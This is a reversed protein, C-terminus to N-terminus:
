GMAANLKMPPRGRKKKLPVKHNGSINKPDTSGSSEIPSLTIISGEVTFRVSGGNQLGLANVVEAPISCVRTKDLRANYVLTEPAPASKEEPSKGGVSLGEDQWALNNGCSRCFKPTTGDARAPTDNGCQDCKM